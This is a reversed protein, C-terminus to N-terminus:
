KLAIEYYQEIFDSVSMGFYGAMEKNEIKINSVEKKIDAESFDKLQTANDMIKNWLTEQNTQEAESKKDSVLSDRVQKKYEKVTKCDTNEKVLADNM